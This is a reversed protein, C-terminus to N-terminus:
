EHSRANKPFRRPKLSRQFTANRASKFPRVRLHAMTYGKRNDDRASKLRRPIHKRSGLQRAVWQPGECKTVFPSHGETALAM